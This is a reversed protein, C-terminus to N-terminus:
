HIRFNFACPLDGGDLEELVGSPMEPIKAELVSALTRNTLVANKARKIVRLNKVKGQRDVDFAVRIKVGYGLFDGSALMKAQWARELAVHMEKRYRGIPTNEADFAAYNKPKAGGELKARLTESQFAEVNRDPLPVTSPAAPVANSAAGALVQPPLSSEQLPDQQETEALGEDTAAGPKEGDALSPEEVPSIIGRPFPIADPIDPLFESIVNQARPAAALPQTELIPQDVAPQLAASGPFAPREEPTPSEVIVPGDRYRRQEVELTEEDEGDATPTGEEGEGPQPSAAETNRDSVLDPSAPSTPSAQNATTRVYSRNNEERQSERDEPPEPQSPPLFARPEMVIWDALPLVMERKAQAGAEGSGQRLRRLWHAVSPLLAAHLGLSVGIAM